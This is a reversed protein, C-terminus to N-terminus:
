SNVHKITAAYVGLDRGMIQGERTDSSYLRNQPPHTAAIGLIECLKEFEKPYLRKASNKPKINVDFTLILLGEPKLVRLLENIFAKLVVETDKKLPELIHELTSICFIRDFHSKSFPIDLINGYTPHLNKLNNEAKFKAIRRLSFMDQDFSYYNCGKEAFYFQLPGTGAGCDLIKFEKTPYEPINSNIIAYPYEYRRSWHLSSSVGGVLKYGINKDFEFLEKTLKQYKDDKLCKQTAWGSDIVRIPFNLKAAKEALKYTKRNEKRNRFQRYVPIANLLQSLFWQWMPPAFFISM